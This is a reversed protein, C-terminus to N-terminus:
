QKCFYDSKFRAHLRAEPGTCDKQRASHVASVSVAPAANGWSNRIYTIVAVIEADSLKWGFAPMATGTPVHDTAAGKGGALVLRIPATADAAQVIPNAKLPPFLGPLGTGAKSHCASCNDVYIAQGAHMLSQQELMPKQPEGANTSSPQHQTAASAVCTGLLTLLCAAVSWKM